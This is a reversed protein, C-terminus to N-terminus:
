RVATLTPPFLEFCGLHDALGSFNLLHPCHCYLLTLASFFRRSMFHPRHATVTTALLEEDSVVGRKRISPDGFFLRMPKFPDEGFLMLAAFFMRVSDFQRVLM